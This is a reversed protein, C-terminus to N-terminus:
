KELNFFVNACMTEMAVLRQSLETLVYEIPIDDNIDNKEYHYCMVSVYLEDTTMQSVAHMRELDDLESQDEHQEEVDIKKIEKTKRYHELDFAMMM